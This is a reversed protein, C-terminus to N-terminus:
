TGVFQPVRAETCSLRVGAVVIGRVIATEDM